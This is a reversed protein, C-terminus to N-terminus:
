DAVTMRYHSVGWASGEAYASCGRLPSSSGAGAACGCRRKTATSAALVAEIEDRRSEFNALWDLATRQYHTGSWRWEQEVDFLDAVAPHLPLRPRRGVPPAGSIRAPCRVNM